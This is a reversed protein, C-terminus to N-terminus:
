PRWKNPNSLNSTKPVPALIGQKWSEFDLKSEWFNLLLSHIVSALYDADTNALEDAKDKLGEEWWVM